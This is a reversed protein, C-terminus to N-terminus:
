KHLNELTEALEARHRETGNSHAAAHLRKESIDKGAPTHTERHLAGKDLHAHEIWHPDKDAM